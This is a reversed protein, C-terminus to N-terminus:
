ELKQLLNALVQVSEARTTVGQPVFLHNERGNVLGIQQAKQIHERSWKNAKELDAFPAKQDAVDVPQQVYEYARVIMTVMEERTITEDPAFRTASKGNIIGAESAARISAAYWTNPAVDTFTLDALSSKLGLARVLLTAFEARTVSRTPAFHQEDVGQVIHKAAMEKIMDHAWYTEKVDLFDKDYELVAYKSFHSLQATLKGEKYKGGVYEITGDEKMYYFGILKKNATDAVALTITIPSTFTSLKTEKGENDVIALTFDYVDGVAKIKAKAKQSALNTITTVREEEVREFSFSINANTMGQALDQLEKLLKAPIEASFTEGTVELSNKGDIAAAQAPLLVQKTGQAIPVVIKGNDIQPQNVIIKEEPSTPSPTAPRSPSPPNSPNTPGKPGEKEVKIVVTTLADLSIKDKTLTFGSRKSVEKTGAEDQDVVVIGKRLDMELTFTREKTDANVFVYYADGNTAQNRYAIVLDNEKVEPANVLTVNKDVLEKSGLRFADTSKRLAILGQTYTRTVNNVPYLKANTAKNWDFRNIIDSSDYSDHIFYPYVFPNGSQDVMYTSKYPPTTAEARWQKTRGFEQGAHIFATGQATLVMANGLRIRKHIELDNEPYEPDKKISQAIVDYLTLNDHAEIYPVVDGPQDAVFNYPQAKINAM